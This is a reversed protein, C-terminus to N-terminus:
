RKEYHHGKLIVQRTAETVEEDLDLNAVEEELFQGPFPAYYFDGHKSAVMKAPETRVKHDYELRWEEIEQPSSPTVPIAIETDKNNNGSTNVTLYSALAIFFLLIAFVTVVYKKNM